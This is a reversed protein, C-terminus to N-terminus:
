MGTLMIRNYWEFNFQTQFILVNQNYNSFLQVKINKIRSANCKIWFKNNKSYGLSRLVDAYFWNCDISSELRRNVWM